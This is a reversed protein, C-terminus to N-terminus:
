DVLGEVLRKEDLFELTFNTVELLFQGEVIHERTAAALGGHAVRVGCLLGVLNLRHRLLIQGSLNLINLRQRRHSLGILEKHLHSVQEAFELLLM